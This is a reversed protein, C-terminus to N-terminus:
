FLESSYIQQLVNIRGEVFIENGTLEKKRKAKPSGNEEPNDGMWHTVLGFIQGLGTGPCKKPVFNEGLRNRSKKRFWIRESVPESVKKPVLNEELGIGLSKETSFKESVSEPVKKPVLNKRSRNRYWVFLAFIGSRPSVLVWILVFIRVFKMVPESIKKPVLNTRSRNRSKKRYWIKEIGTGIGDFFQLIGPVPIDCETQHIRQSSFVRAFSVKFEADFKRRANPIM